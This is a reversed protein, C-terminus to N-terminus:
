SPVGAKASEKTSRAPMHLWKPREVGTNLILALLIVVGTVIPHYSAPINLLNLGNEIFGVILAGVLAGLVSGSGGALSTGGVVLATIVALEIGRAAGAFAQQSLSALVIGALAATFSSLMYAGIRTRDPDIGSLKATVDNAGVALARRGYTVYRLLLHSLIVCVVMIYIPVPFGLIKGGGIVLFGAPQLITIMSGQSIVMAIGYLWTMAAMTVIFAPVRFKATVVGNFFGILLGAALTIVLSLWLPLGLVNMMYNVIIGSLAAVAGVSLDIGGTIPAYIAGCCMIAIVCVSWLVNSLNQQTLFYPSLFSLVVMLLLLVFLLRFRKLVKNITM